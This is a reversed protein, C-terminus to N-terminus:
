GNGKEGILYPCYGDAIGLLWSNWCAAHNEIDDCDSDFDPCRKAPVLPIVKPKAEVM